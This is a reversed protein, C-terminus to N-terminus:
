ISLLLYIKSINLRVMGSAWFSALGRFIDIGADTIWSTILEAYLEISKSVKKHPSHFLFRARWHRIQSSASQCLDIYARTQMRELHTLIPCDQHKLVWLVPGPSRSWFPFFLIEAVSARRQTMTIIDKESSQHYWWAANTTWLSVASSMAPNRWLTEGSMSRDIKM